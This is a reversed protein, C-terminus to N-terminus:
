WRLGLHQGDMRGWRLQPDIGSGAFLKTGRFLTAQGQYVKPNYNRAAQIVAKVIKRRARAARVWPVGIGMYIMKYLLRDLKAKIYALKGGAGLLLLNSM